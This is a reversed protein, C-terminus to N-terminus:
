PHPQGMKPKDTVTADPGFRIHLGAHPAKQTGYLASTIRTQVAVTVLMGVIGFVTAALIGARHDLDQQPPAPRTKTALLIVLLTCLCANFHIVGETILRQQHFPPIARMLNGIVMWWLLVIYLLQGKGLWGTPIIALPRRLNVVLLWVVAIALVLYALNFWWFSDLGYLTAPISKSDVWTEVNKVINVYTIGLLVFVVAFVETWRRCGPTENETLRPLRGALLGMVVAIGIGNILGYTQELVSHWNTELGTKMLVLKVFTATSFGFGGIFGSVLTALAVTGLGARLLYILIGATMGLAGAWNDGRPPTMRLGLLVVLLLFAAWWGIAAHLVLSTGACIRRRVAALVLVAVVALAAAIWDTDYWYLPNEHRYAGSDVVLHAPSTTPVGRLLDTLHVLVQPNRELHGFVVDQITWAVFVAVLAPFFETLRSRTTCAPLATGAGGMAGWAFGIVFLCAFGYLVSPLHGSHTYAIVQMYSISGGFSWGLAGFFAFYPIRPWWDERGSVLVVALAALAGPIMAGYEHGFNGRIGWGISLSLGGLLVMSITIGPAPGSAGSDNSSPSRTM